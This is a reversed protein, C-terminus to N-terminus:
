QEGGPGAYAAPDTEAYAAAREDKPDAGAEEALIANRVQIVAPPTVGAAQAVATTLGKRDPWGRFIRAYIGRRRIRIADLADNAGRDERAVVVLEDMLEQLDPDDVTQPIIDPM